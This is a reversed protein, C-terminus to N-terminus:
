QERRQIRMFVAGADSGKAVAVQAEAGVLKTTECLSRAQAVDLDIVAPHLRTRRVKDHPHQVRPTSRPRPRSSKAKSHSAAEAAIIESQQPFRGRGRHNQRERVGIDRALASGVLDFAPDVADRALASGVLDFAPDVADRALASGVLDLASAVAGRALASGVLDFASDFVDRERAEWLGRFPCPSAPLQRILVIM